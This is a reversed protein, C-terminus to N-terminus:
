VAQRRQTLYEEIKLVRFDVDKPDQLIKALINLADVTTFIGKVQDALDVIVVCGFKNDAMTQAVEAISADSQVSYPNESMIQTVPQNSAHGLSFGKSLDRDSVLGVLRDNHDTVPLHRMGWMQMIEQAERISVGTGITVPEATMNSGISKKM